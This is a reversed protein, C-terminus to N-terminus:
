KTGTITATLTGTTAVGGCDHASTRVSILHAGKPSVTIKGSGCFLQVNGAYDDDYFVQFGAGADSAKIEITKEGKKTDFDWCGDVAQCGNESSFSGAATAGAAQFGTYDYTLTRSTAKAPAATAALPTLVVAAATLVLLSRKM